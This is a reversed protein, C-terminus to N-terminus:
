GKAKSMIFELTMMSVWQFHEWLADLDVVGSEAEGVCMVGTLSSLRKGLFHDRLTQRIRFQEQRQAATKSRQCFAVNVRYTIENRTSRQPEGEETDPYVKVCPTDVADFAPPIEVTAAIDVSEGDTDKSTLGLANVEAAVATMITDIEAEGDERPIAYVPRSFYSPLDADKAHLAFEYLQDNTLGTIVIDGTGTRKFTESIASWGTGPVARRYRAYVVDTESDPVVHLTVQGDGVTRPTSAWGPTGPPTSGGGEYTGELTEGLYLWTEGDKVNAAGPSTNRAQEWAERDFVGVRSVGLQDWASPGGTAPTAIKSLDPVENRAAEYAAAYADPDFEGTEGRLTDSDLVSALAPVDMEGPADRLTDLPDVASLEPLDMTGALGDVTDDPAVNAREPFDINASTGVKDVNQIKYSTPALVNGVGPDTNRAAEDFTGSEGLLTDTDLVSSLAPLDAAGDYETGDTGYSVGPIVEAEAPLALNGEYETEPGFATGDRVDDESPYGGSASVTLPVDPMDPLMMEVQTDGDSNLNGKLRFYRKDTNIAQMDSKLQALTRGTTWSASGDDYSWDFTVNTYDYGDPTDLDAALTALESGDWTEGAGADKVVSGDEGGTDYGQELKFNDLEWQTSFASYANIQFGVNVDVNDTTQHLLLKRDALDAGSAYVSISWYTGDYTWEWELTITDDIDISSNIICRRIFLSKERPVLNGSSDFFLNPLEDDLDLAAARALGVMCYGKSGRITIPVTFRGPTGVSVLATLYAGNADWASSGKFKLKGGSVEVNAGADVMTLHGADSAFDDTWQEVLSLKCARKGTGDIYELKDSDSLTLEDHFWGLSAM